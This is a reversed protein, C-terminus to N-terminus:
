DVGRYLLNTQALYLVAADRERRSGDQVYQVGYSVSVGDNEMSSVGGLEANEAKADIVACLALNIRLLEEETVDGSARGMTLDDVLAAAHYIQRNFDEETLAGHYTEQYFIFSVTRM